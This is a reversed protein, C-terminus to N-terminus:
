GATSTPTSGSASQRDLFPALPTPPTVWGAPGVLLGPGPRRIPRETLRHRRALSRGPSPRRPPRDGHRPDGEARGRGRRAAPVDWITTRPHLDPEPGRDAVLRDPATRHWTPSAVRFRWPDAPAIGDGAGTAAIVFLHDWRDRHGEEDWRWDIRTDSAGAPQRRRATGRRARPGAGPSRVSSSARRAQRATHRHPARRAVLCTRASVSGDCTPRPDWPEGRRGPRDVAAEDVGRRPAGTSAVAAATRAV